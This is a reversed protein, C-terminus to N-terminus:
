NLDGFNFNFAFWVIIASLRTVFESQWITISYFSRIIIMTKNRPNDQTTTYKELKQTSHAVLLQDFRKKEATKWSKKNMEFSKWHNCPQFWCFIFSFSCFFFSQFSCFLNFFPHFLPTIKITCYNPGLTALVCSNYIKVLVQTSCVGFALRFLWKLTKQSICCVAGAGWQCVWHGFFAIQFILTAHQIIQGEQFINIPVRSKASLGLGLSILFFLISLKTQM